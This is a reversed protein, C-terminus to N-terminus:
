KKKKKKTKEDDSDSDAGKDNEKDDSSGKSAKETEEKAQDKIKQLISEERQKKKEAKKAKKQELEKKEMLAQFRPDRLTIKFGLEHRIDELLQERKEKAQRAATEKKIRRDELEKMWKDLKGLNQAIKDERQRVAAEKEAKAQNNAAVMEQITHPYALRNYERKDAIEEPTNFCLRADIGTASGYVAYQKRSFYLTKDWPYEEEPKPLNVLLNRQTKRLRSKNRMAEIKKERAVVDEEDPLLEALSPKSDDENYVEEDKPTTASSYNAAVPRTM